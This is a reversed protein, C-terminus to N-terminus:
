IRVVTLLCSHHLTESASREILAAESPKIIWEVIVSVYEEDIVGGSTRLHWPHIGFPVVQFPINGDFYIM